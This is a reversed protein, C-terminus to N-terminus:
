PEGCDFGDIFKIKSSINNLYKTLDELIFGIFKDDTDKQSKYNYLKLNTKRILIDYYDKIIKKKRINNKQKLTSVTSYQNSGVNFTIGQGAGDLSASDYDYFYIPANM